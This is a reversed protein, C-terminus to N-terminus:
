HTKDGVLAVIGNIFNIDTIGVVMTAASKGIRSSLADSTVPIHCIDASYYRCADAIRKKTNASADSAVLVFSLKGRRIEDRCIDTGCVLRRARAAFGLLGLLKEKKDEPICLALDETRDSGKEQKDSM